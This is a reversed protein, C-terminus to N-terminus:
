NTRYIDYCATYIRADNSLRYRSRWALKLGAKTSIPPWSGLLRRYEVIGVRAVAAGNMFEATKLCISYYSYAPEALAILIALMAITIILEILSFGIAPSKRKISAM